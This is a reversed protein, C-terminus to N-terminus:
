HVRSIHPTAIHCTCTQQSAHVLCALVHFLFTSNIINVQMDGVQRNLEEQRKRLLEKEEQLKQLATQQQPTVMGPGGQRALIGPPPMIGPPLQGPIGPMGPQSRVKLQQMHAAAFCCVFCSLSILM